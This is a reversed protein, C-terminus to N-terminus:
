PSILWGVPIKNSTLKYATNKELDILVVDNGYDDPRYHAAVVLSKGDPSWVPNPPTFTPDMYGAAICTDRVAGTQTDLIALTRHDSAIDYLWLAVHRGDPSWDYYEASYTAGTMKSPDFNPNMHTIKTVGGDYGVVYFEDDGKVIFKSGDPSWVPPPDFWSPIQALKKKEPIGYLIYGNGQYDDTTVSGPYVVRTLTPDYVTTGSQNWSLLNYILDIDPFDPPLTQIKDHFPNVVIVTPPYIDWGPASPDPEAM